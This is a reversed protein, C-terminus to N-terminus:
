HKKYLPPAYKLVWRGDQYVYKLSPEVQHNARWPANLCDAKTAGVKEFTQGKFTVIGTYPSVISNTKQIDYSYDTFEKYFAHWKGDSNFHQISKEPHEREDAGWTQLSELEKQITQLFSEKVKAEESQTFAIGPVFCISIILCFIVSRTKM